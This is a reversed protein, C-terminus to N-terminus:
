ISQILLAIIVLWLLSYHILNRKRTRYLTNDLYDIRNKLYENMREQSLVKIKTTM